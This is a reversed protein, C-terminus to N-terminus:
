PLRRIVQDTGATTVNDTEKKGEWFPDKLYQKVDGTPPKNYWVCTKTKHTIKHPGTYQIKKQDSRVM